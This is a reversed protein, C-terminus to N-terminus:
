RKEELAVAVRGKGGCKACPPPYIKRGQQPPQQVKPFGTGNCAGCKLETTRATAM